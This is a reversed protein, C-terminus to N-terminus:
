TIYERPGKYFLLLLSSLLLLLLIYIYINKKGRQDPGLFVDRNSNLSSDTDNDYSYVRKVPAM